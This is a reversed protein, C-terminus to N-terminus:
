SLDSIHRWTYSHVELHRKQYGIGEVPGWSPDLVVVTEWSFHLVGETGGSFDSLVCDGFFSVDTGFTWKSGPVASSVFVEIELSIVLRGLLGLAEGGGGYCLLFLDWRLGWSFM